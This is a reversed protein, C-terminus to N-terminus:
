AGHKSVKKCIESLNKQQSAQLANQARRVVHGGRAEMDKTSSYQPHATLSFVDM